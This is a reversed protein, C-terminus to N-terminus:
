RETSISRLRASKRRRLLQTASIAIILGVIPFIAGKEWSAVSSLWALPTITHTAASAPLAGCLQMVFAASLIKIRTQTSSTKMQPSDDKKCFVLAIQWHSKEAVRKQWECNHSQSVFYFAAARRILLAAADARLWGL